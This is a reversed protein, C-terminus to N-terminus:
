NAGGSLRRLEEALGQWGAEDDLDIDRTDGDTEINVVHWWGKHTNIDIELSAETTDLSWEAQVGGEPTPYLHPLQIDDPYYQEFAQSLWDLGETSPAEGRGECWGTTLLRFSDLRAAIDLEDLITIHEISDFRLLQKNRSFCGVGQLSVLVGDQYGNFAELVTDIHQPAIPAGIKKGNVQQVEFTLDDQDAESISGRILCEETLEKIRISASVLNKRTITTLRAPEGKENNSFEMTEGEHLSRGLRDFYGLMKEALHETIM